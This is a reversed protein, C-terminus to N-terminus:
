RHNLGHSRSTNSQHSSVLAQRSRLIKRIEPLAMEAAREGTTILEIVKSYGFLVNVGAPIHPRVLVDPPYQQLRSERAVGVMLRATEDLINLTQSVGAPLGRYEGVWGGSDGDPDTGVDVAVVVEAGLSRAANVPLNNLLGGDVLRQGDLEVPAFLGPLSTTARLALAVSGERLVFERRANLDVAVLALPLDLDAFTRRDLHDEFYAQLRQGHMLGADNLGPDALSLMRRLRTTTMAEAELEAPSMGAAYGAAIVGGMSTGALCDVPIGERDLVKLVGIHALGRAGGGSLALGLSSRRGQDSNTEQSNNM